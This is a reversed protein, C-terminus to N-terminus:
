PVSQAMELTVPLLLTQVGALAEMLGAMQDLLLQLPLVEV